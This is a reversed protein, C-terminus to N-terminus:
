VSALDDGGGEGDGASFGSRLYMGHFRGADGFGVAGVRFFGGSRASGFAFRAGGSVCDLVSEVGSSGDAFEEAFGFLCVPSMGLAVGGEEAIGDAGTIREDFVCQARQGRRLPPELAGSEDFGTKEIEGGLLDVVLGDFGGRLPKGSVVREFVLGARDFTERARGEVNGARLVVHKLGKRAGFRLM